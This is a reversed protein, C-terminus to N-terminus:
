LNEMENMKRLAEEAESQTLFISKNFDNLMHINFKMKDIRSWETPKDGVEGYTLGKRISYVDSGVKCPLKLLVGREELYEYEKCKKMKNIAIRCAVDFDRGEDAQEARTELGLIRIIQEIDFREM